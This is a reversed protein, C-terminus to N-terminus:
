RKIAWFTLDGQVLGFDDNYSLPINLKVPLIKSQGPDMEVSFNRWSQSNINLNDKFVNDGSVETELYIKNNGNDITLNQSSNQGPKLKGFDLIDPNISFSIEDQKGDPPVAVKEIEAKLGVQHETPAEGTTLNVKESRLYGKGDIIQSEVFAQYFGGELGSLSIEAKGSSNTIFDSLGIKIKVGETELNQWNSTESNYYKVQIEALDGTKTLDAKTPFWGKELWEGSFWLVQDGPELYYNDAGVMPSINNVMYMWNDENNIKALYLGLGPYESITYDYNCIKSGKIILGLATTGSVETECITSDKGEVRLIHLNYATQVPYFKESLAVLVYPSCFKNDGNAQWWFGGDADQLSKLHDIANKGNKQWSLDDPSQGLKLIASVVWADSCSDSPDSALYSFGGDNNQRAKLYNVANSVNSSSSSVGAELLAMIISATDNTDSSSFSLTYSWGGDPNQHSLIYDKASQVMASNEQGVAGLALIAWADDNILDKEGFQNDQYFSKLKEIYNEDGFSAPNKGASTLALIYKAYTTASKQDSPVSKLYDLNNETEGASALAMTNWANQPQLKLYNVAKDIESQNEARIEFFINLGIFSVLIIILSLILIKKKM